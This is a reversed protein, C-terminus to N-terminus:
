NCDDRNLLPLATGLCNIPLQESETLSSCRFAIISIQGLNTLRYEGHILVLCVPSIRNFFDYCMMIWFDVNLRSWASTDSVLLFKEERSPTRCYLHFWRKITGAQDEASILALTIAEIGDLEAPVM